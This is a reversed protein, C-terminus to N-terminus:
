VSCSNQLFFTRAKLLASYHAKTFCMQNSVWRLHKTLHWHTKNHVPFQQFFSTQGHSSCHLPYRIHMVKNLKISWCWLCSSMCNRCINLTNLYDVSVVFQYKREGQQECSSTHCWVAPSTLVEWRYPFFLNYIDNPQKIDFVFVNSGNVLTYHTKVLRILALAWTLKVAM